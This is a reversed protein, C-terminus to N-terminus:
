KCILKIMKKMWDANYGEGITWKNSILNDLKTKKETMEQIKEEISDMAQLKYINVNRRQGIRHIRDMVQTIRADCWWPDIIIM